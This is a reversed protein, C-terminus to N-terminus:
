PFGPEPRLRRLRLDGGDGGRDLALCFSSSPADISTSFAVSSSTCLCVSTIFALMASSIM